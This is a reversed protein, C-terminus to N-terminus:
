GIKSKWNGIRSKRDEIRLRWNGIGLERNKMVVFNKTDKVVKAKRVGAANAIDRGAQEEVRLVGQQEGRLM